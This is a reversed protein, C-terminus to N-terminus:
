TLEAKYDGIPTPDPNGGDKKVPVTLTATYNGASLGKAADKLAAKPTKGKGKGDGRSGEM